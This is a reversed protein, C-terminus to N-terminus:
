EDAFFIEAGLAIIPDDIAISSDSLPNQRRHCSYRFVSPAPSDYRDLSAENLASKILGDLDSQPINLRSAIDELGRVISGDFNNNTLFRSSTM